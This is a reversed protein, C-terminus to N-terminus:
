LEDPHVPAAVFGRVMLGNLFKFTLEQATFIAQSAIAV